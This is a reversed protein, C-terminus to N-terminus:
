TKSTAPHEQFLDTLPLNAQADQTYNSFITEYHTILPDLHSFIDLNDNTGFTDFNDKFAALTVKELPLAPQYHLEASNNPNKSEIPRILGMDVLRTLSSNIIHSPARLDLALQHATLSPLCNQFRRAIVIFVAFCLSERARLSINDWIRQNSLTNVNQVSYTIQGGLLLLLWFIFLGFLLVPLIGVSGFLNQQRIVISVYLFTLNKNAFLLLTVTCGGVFSPWWRVATNPISRNFFTILLTIIIFSLGPAIWSLSQQFFSSYPLQAFISTASQYIGVSLSAFGVVAGLSIFTWYYVLRQLLSRNQRAGWITNFTQEITSLLQICIAILILSGVVGVAGSRANSVVEKIVEVIQPDVVISESQTTHAITPTNTDIAQERQSATEAPPAIFYVLKTLAKVTLEEQDSQIVFGSIMIAIAILPGLALLTSYSLAAAQSPIRNNRLGDYIIAFLRLLAFVRGKASKESLTSSQWIERQLFDPLKKILKRFSVRFQGAM